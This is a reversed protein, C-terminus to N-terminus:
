SEEDRSTVRAPDYLEAIAREPVTQLTDGRQGVFLAGETSACHLDTRQFHAGTFDSGDLVAHHMLAYPLEAGRFSASKASARTFVSRLAKAGTLDCGDLRAEQFVCQSVNADRLKAARLDAKMFVTNALVARELNAGLLSTGVMM